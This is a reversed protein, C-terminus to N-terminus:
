HQIPSTQGGNESSWIEGERPQERYVRKVRIRHWNDYRAINSDESDDIRDYPIISVERLCHM